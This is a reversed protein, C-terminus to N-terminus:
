LEKSFRWWGYVFCGMVGVVVGVSFHLLEIM